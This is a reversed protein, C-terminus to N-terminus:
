VEERLRAVAEATRASEERLEERLQERLARAEGASALRERLLAEAAEEKGRAMVARVEQLCRGLWHEREDSLIREFEETAMPARAKQVFGPQGVGTRDPQAQAPTTAADEVELLALRGAPGSDPLAAAMTERSRDRAPAASRHHGARKSACRSTCLARTQVRLLPQLLPTGTVRQRFGLGTYLPPSGG